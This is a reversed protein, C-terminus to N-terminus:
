VEHLVLSHLVANNKDIKMTRERIRYMEYEINLEEINVNVSDGVGYDAWNYRDIITVKIESYPEENEALYRDGKDNLTDTTTINRADLLDELTTYKNRISADSERHVYLMDEYTGAGLVYVSNALNGLMKKRTSWKVLVTKNIIIDQRSTGKQPYYVNFKKDTDIEFDFGDKLNFNSITDIADKLTRFRFEKDRNKSAQITGKTIGWDSYPSDKTQAEDILQWAIEGADTNTFKTLPTGIVRKKFIGYYDVSAIDLAVVDGSYNLGVDTIVGVYIKNGDDDYVELDRKGGTLSDFVDGYFVDEIQTKLRDYDVTVWLSANSNLKETLTIKTYDLSYKITDTVILRVEM